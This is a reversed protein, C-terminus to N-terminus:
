VDSAESIMIKCGPEGTTYDKAASVAVVLADDKFVTGTLGDLTSRILKDLDPKVTHMIRNVTKGRPMLFHLTVEIPGDLLERNRMALVAQNSVAARWPKVKSSAEVLVVRGNKVFGTKSGQPAPEGAVFFSIM